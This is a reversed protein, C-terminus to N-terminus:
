HSIRWLEHYRAVLESFDTVRTQLACQIPRLLGQWSCAAPEFLLLALAILLRERPHRTGGRTLLGRPGFDRLNIMLSKWLPSEPCKNLRSLAYGQMSRFSWGLRRSELWLWVERALSRVQDLRAALAPRPEDSRVPHLKFAIGAQHHAEIARRWADDRNWVLEPLRKERELCSWHYRGHATLVVDGLALQAKAINRGVFDADDPSFAAQQLLAVSFLLGSCRNM